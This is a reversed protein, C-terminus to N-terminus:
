SGGSTYRVWLPRAAAAKLSEARGSRRALPTGTKRLSSKLMRRIVGCPRPVFHAPNADAHQQPL